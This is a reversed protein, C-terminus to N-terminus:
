SNILVFYLFSTTFVPILASSMIVFDQYTSQEAMKNLKKKQWGVEQENHKSTEHCFLQVRHDTETEPNRFVLFGFYFPVTRKHHKSIFLELKLATEPAQLLLRVHIHIPRHM